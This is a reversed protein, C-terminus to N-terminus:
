RSASLVAEVDILIQVMKECDKLALYVGEEMLKDPDTKDLENGMWDVFQRYGKIMEGFNLERACKFTHVVQRDFWPDLNGLNVADKLTILKIALQSSFSIAAIDFLQKKSGELASIAQLQRTEVQSESILAPTTSAPPQTSFQPQGEVQSNHQVQRALHLAQAENQACNGNLYKDTQHRFGPGQLTNFAQKPASNEDKALTKSQAENHGQFNNVKNNNIVQTRLDQIQQSLARQPAGEGVKAIASGQGQSQVQSEINQNGSNVHARNGRIQERVDIPAKQLAPDIEVPHGPRAISNAGQYPNEFEESPTRTSTTPAYSPRIPRERLMGVQAQLNGIQVNKEAERLRADELKEQLQKIHFELFYDKGHKDEKIAGGFLGNGGNGGNDGKNEEKIDRGFLGVNSLGGNGGKGANANGAQETLAKKHKEFESKLYDDPHMSPQQKVLAKNEQEDKPEKKIKTPTKPESKNGRASLHSPLRPPNASPYYGIQTCSPCTGPQLLSNKTCRNGRHKCTPQHQYISHGCIEWTTGTTTCPAM